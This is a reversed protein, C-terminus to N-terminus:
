VQLMKRAVVYDVPAVFVYMTTGMGGNGFHHFARDENQLELRCRIHAAELKEAAAKAEHVPADSLLLAWGDWVDVVEDGVIEERWDVGGDDEDGLDSLDKAQKTKSASCFQLGLFSVGVIAFVVGGNWKGSRVMDVVVPVCCLVVVAIAAFIIKKKM